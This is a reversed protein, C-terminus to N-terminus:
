EQKPVIYSNLHHLLESGRKVVCENGVATKVQALNDAQVVFLKERQQQEIRVAKSKLESENHSGPREYEIALKVDGLDAFIDATQMHNVEVKWGQDLLYGAMLMVTSYHDVSQTGVKEGKLIDSHIWVSTLGRGVPTIVRRSVYGNSSLYASGDGNIWGSAFFSNETALKLLEPQINIADDTTVIKGTGKIINMEHDTPKFKIHITQDNLKLVGEGVSCSLLKDQEDSNLSFYDKVINISDHKMNNGLIVNMIMNTKFEDSVNAKILDTPQQTALWLALGYSRGQTILTLLYNAIDPNRMLNGAEDVAIITEKRTDTTFRMSMIGTVLVNMANKISQPVGSMDIVIFDSTLDIDTPNNMYALEGKAGLQYTKDYLAQATVDDNADAKFLERLDHLKPWAANKWSAPNDKYIGANEYVKDLYMDLKSIQNITIENNFWIKVFQQVIGKHSNYARIYDYSDNMYTSDFLIQLPNINKGQPGIDILAGGYYEPVARYDTGKDAKNTTFIVRKDLMDHARMLLMLLSFTKGSGTAGVFLMHQAVLKDLDIQIHKNTKVDVGFYLGNNDTINNPTRIPAIVAADDSFMEVSGEHLYGPFPMANKLTKLQLAFPIEHLILNSKLRQIVRGEAVRLSEYTDASIIVTFVTHFMNQERRHVQAFNAEFDMYDYKLALPVNGLVNSKQGAIQGALNNTVAAQIMDTSKEISIPIFKVSYTITCGFTNLETLSDILQKPLNRPYGDKDGTPVGVIITKIYSEENIILCNEKEEIKAPTIQRSLSDFFRVEKVADVAVRNTHKISNAKIKLKNIIGM